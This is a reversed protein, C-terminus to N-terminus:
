PRVEIGAGLAAALRLYEEHTRRGLRFQEGERTTRGGDPAISVYGDAFCQVTFRTHGTRDSRAIVVFTGHPADLDHPSYGLSSLARVADRFLEPDGPRAPGAGLVPALSSSGCADLMLVLLSLGVASRM